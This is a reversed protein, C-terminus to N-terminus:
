GERPSMSANARQGATQAVRLDAASAGTGARANENNREVAADSLYTLWRPALSSRSDWGLKTQGKTAQPLWRGVAKFVDASLNPFLSNILHLARAQPGIMLFPDGYRCARVIQRAARASNVSFIPLANSISFLAFESEHRGKFSANLHSGTRMLGPCVTTVHIGDKALEARIGDSLGVLAFKSACYPVLHPVAVKGGFSAINVIRGDGRRKMYPIAQRILHLPGWFHVEMCDEFDEDNMTEYPGVQIIGANNVLVDIKGRWDLVQRLSEDINKRNRIDCRLPLVSGRLQLHRSARQLEESDRALLAVYARERVFIRALELGLGRSGGSIIVCRNAFDMRRARRLGARAALLAASIAIGRSVLPSM